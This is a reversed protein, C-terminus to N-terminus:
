AAAGDSIEPVSDGPLWRKERTYARIREDVFLKIVSDIMDARNTFDHLLRSCELPTGIDKAKPGTEIRCHNIGFAQSWSFLRADHTRDYVLQFGSPSEDENFWVTLEMNEDLLWRRDAPVRPHNFPRRPSNNAFFGPQEM